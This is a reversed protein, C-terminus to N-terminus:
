HETALLWAISLYQLCTLFLNVKVLAATPSWYGNMIKDDISGSSRNVSLVNTIDQVSPLLFSIEVQKKKSVLAVSFANISLVIIRLTHLVNCIDNM